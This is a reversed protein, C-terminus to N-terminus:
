SNYLKNLEKRERLFENEVFFCTSFTKAFFTYGNERMFIYIPNKYIEEISSTLIEVLVVKPRYKNWDNGKLVEFDKGEVDINLFDIEQDKPLYKELIKLLPYVKIPVKKVIYYGMKGNMEKVWNEDFTNLAPENFMYYTLTEEKEGVAIELNIDRKRFKNFLRMSGPTADINIGRWGRLYFIYTNSFLFPHYAGVDVYFGKQKHEFIRRLILDEGEQSYSSFCYNRFILRKVEIIEDPLVKKAMIKIRRVM